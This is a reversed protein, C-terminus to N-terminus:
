YIEAKIEGRLYPLVGEAMAELENEGPYVYIPAIHKVWDSILDTVRKWNALGGTIVIADVDGRLTVSRAGIEKAVQYAMAEVATKAEEDGSEIRTEIELGDSTGLYAALGGEVGLKNHMEQRTYKGSYCMDVLPGVPVAGCRVSSFPGDSEIGNNVDIVKGHQHAGVTTGSGIHAVIINVEEYKKGIEASVRKAMAKQNAVHYSNPRPIEPLGSYTAIKMMNVDTTPDVTLVPKNFEKGLYYVLVCGPNSTHIGYKETKFDEVMNEDIIYVGPKCPKVLGSCSVFADFDQLNYKKQNAWETIDRRRVDYQEWVTKFKKMEDLSHRITDKYLPEDGKYIAVKTTTGGYMIVLLLPNIVNM